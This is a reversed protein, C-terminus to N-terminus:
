HLVHEVNLVRRYKIFLKQLTPCPLKCSTKVREQHFTLETDSPRQTHCVAAFSEAILIQGPYCPAQSLARIALIHPIDQHKSRVVASMPAYRASEAVSLCADAPKVRLNLMQIGCLCRCSRRKEGWRDRAKTAKMARLRNLECM